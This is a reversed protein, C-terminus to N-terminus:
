GRKNGGGVQELRSLAQAATCRESSNLKTMDRVLAFWKDTNVDSVKTKLLGLIMMGLSYIDVREPHSRMKGEKKVQDYAARMEAGSMYGHIIGYVDLIGESAIANTWTSFTEMTSVMSYEPPNTIYLDELRHANDHLFVGKEKVAIGFDIIRARGDQIVINRPLVDQHVLGAENLKVLGELLERTWRLLQAGSIKSFTSLAKGGFPMILQHVQFGKKRSERAIASNFNIDQGMLDQISPDLHSMECSDVGYVLHQMDPDVRKLPALTKEEQLFNKKIAYIKGVYTDDYEKLGECAIPPQVIAGNANIHIIGERKNRKPRPPSMPTGFAERQSSPARIIQAPPPSDFVNEQNLFRSMTKPKKMPSGFSRSSQSPSMSNQNKRKVPSPALEFNTIDQPPSLMRARTKKGRRMIFDDSPSGFDMGRIFM